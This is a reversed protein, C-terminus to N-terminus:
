EQREPAQQIAQAGVFLKACLDSAAKPLIIWSGQLTAGVFPPYFM